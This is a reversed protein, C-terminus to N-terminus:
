RHAPDDPPGPIGATLQQAEDRNCEAKCLRRAIDRYRDLKRHNAPSTVVAMLQPRGEETTGIRVVKIRDSEKELKEWYATLQKYNALCYDDGINHGFFEKPSTVKGQAHAVSALLVLAVSVSKWISRHQM